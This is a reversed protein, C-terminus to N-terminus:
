SRAGGARGERGGWRERGGGDGECYNTLIYYCQQIMNIFSYHELIYINIFIEIFIYFLIISFTTSDISIYIMDVVLSFVYIHLLRFYYLDPFLLFYVVILM